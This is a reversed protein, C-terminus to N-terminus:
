RKNLKKRERRIQADWKKLEKMGSVPIDAMTQIDMKDKSPLGQLYFIYQRQEDKNPDPQEEPRKGILKLLNAHEMVITEQADITNIAECRQINEVISNMLYTNWIDYNFTHVSPFLDEALIIDRFATARSIGPYLARLLAVANKRIPNKELIKAAALARDLIEQKSKPLPSRDPCQFHAKVLQHDLDHISKNNM